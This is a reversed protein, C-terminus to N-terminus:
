LDVPVAAVIRIHDRDLEAVVVADRAVLEAVDGDEHLVHHRRLRLNSSKDKKVAWPNKAAKKRPGPWADRKRGCAPGGLTPVSGAPRRWVSETSARALAQCQKNM